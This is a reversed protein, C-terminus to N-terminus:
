INKQSSIHCYRHYALIIEFFFCNPSIHSWNLARKGYSKGELPRLKRGPLTCTNGRSSDQTSCFNRSDMLVCVQPTETWGLTDELVILHKLGPTSRTTHSQFFFFPPKAKGLCDSISGGPNLTLIGVRQSNPQNIRMAEENAGSRIEMCLRRM